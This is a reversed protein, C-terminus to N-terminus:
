NTSNMLYGRCYLPVIPCHISSSYHRLLAIDRRGNPPTRRIGGVMDIVDKLAVSDGSPGTTQFDCGSQLVRAAGSFRIDSTTHEETYGVGGGLVGQWAVKADDETQKTYQKNSTHCGILASFMFRRQYGVIFYDGYKDRFKNPAEQLLSRASDTLELDDM